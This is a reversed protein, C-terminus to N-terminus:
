FGAKACFIAQIEHCLKSHYSQVSPFTPDVQNNNSHKLGQVPDSSRWSPDEILNGWRKISFTIDAQGVCWIPECVRYKNLNNEWWNSRARTCLNSPLGSEVIDTDNTKKWQKLIHHVTAMHNLSHVNRRVVAKSYSLRKSRGQDNPNLRQMM